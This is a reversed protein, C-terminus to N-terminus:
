QACWQGVDEGVNLVGNVWTKELTVARAIRTNTYTCTVATNPMTFVGDKDPTVGGTCSLSSNYSGTNSGGLLEAVTVQAGPLVSRSVTAPDTWSGADGNSTSTRNPTIQTGGAISLAATDNLVGNVWTKELTVARAIRTNTYTCTVATNPMTFVGDKDPTVGGTCSLSSNYSGTNSGGLLEAVTVQAGPLVSRSVTAPDTWSGADGNSTSTRNPTIQTGGAISLAATDNLVGNVWTKELTVARAIRTNTYTCTVATNPMTFVGDKDPTVGGTCSLSSNYSGTNSGGLLEAVTVQAGPLVSRSVTAPDTWSGADGNSTSTRNPTIQTGGAISLAATDNLVGNVWTKELTVARAIRTNTYTCTVATNPMTFVGDKDPTVGGTCSLSSNYSGTNSGGLLEAVTVQAGPLVSRSVTAPDTWSGADGNSTSTRNPTIQTGGAISLAATDNLVGNVWTKELTVSNRQTNGFFLEEPLLKDSFKLEECAKGPITTASGPDTNTWGSRLVECITYTGPDLPILAVGLPDSSTTYATENDDKVGNENLDVFFDWSAIGSEDPKDWLGNANLDNYKSVPILPTIGATFIQRSTTAGELQFQLSGGTFYSSSSGFPVVPNSDYPGSLRGGWLLYGSTSLATVKIVALAQVAGKTIDGNCEFTYGDFEGDPENLVMSDVITLGVADFVSGTTDTVLTGGPEADPRSADYDRIQTYGFTGKGDLYDRCIPVIKTEGATLGKLELRFPVVEKERYNSKNPNLAGNIWENGVDAWQEFTGVNPSTIPTGDPGVLSVVVRHSVVINATPQLARAHARAISGFGPGAISSGVADETTAEALEQTDATVIRVTYERGAELDDITAKYDRTSSAPADEVTADLTKWTGNKREMQVTYNDDLGFEPWLITASDSDTKVKVGAVYEEVPPSNIDPTEGDTASATAKEEVPAPEESAPEEAPPAPEEAVAPAPDDVVEDELPVDIVAEEAAAEEAPPEDVVAEDAPAAEEAPAEEAPTEEVTVADAAVVEEAAATPEPTAGEDLAVAPLAISAVLLAASTIGALWSTTAGHEASFLGRKSTFM